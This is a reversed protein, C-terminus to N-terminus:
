IFRNLNFMKLLLLFYFLYYNLSNNFSYFIVQQLNVFNESTSTMDPISGKLPPLFGNGHSEIFLKLSHLLIKFSSSDKHLPELM